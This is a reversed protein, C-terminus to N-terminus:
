LSVKRSAIRIRHPSSQFPAYPDPLCLVARGFLDIERLPVLRSSQASRIERVQGAQAHGERPLRELMQQIMKDQGVRIPLVHGNTEGLAEGAEARPQLIGQPDQTAHGLPMARIPQRHRHMSVPLGLLERRPIPCEQTVIPQHGLRGIRAASVLVTVALLTVPTELFRQVLRQQQTTAPVEGAPRFVLRKEM